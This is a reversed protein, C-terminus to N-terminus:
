LKMQAKGNIGFLTIGPEKLSVGHRMSLLVFVATIGGVEKKIPMPHLVILAATDIFLYNGLDGFMM